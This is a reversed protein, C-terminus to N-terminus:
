KRILEFPAAPLQKPLEKDKLNYEKRNRESYVYPINLCMSLDGDEICMSFSFTKLKKMSKLFNLNPLINQGFLHLHELNVLQNICSFDKIKPCNEITLSRLSEAVNSLESIDQLKRGYYIALQQLNDFSNIGDLSTLGCLTFELDMLDKCNSLYKLNRHNKDGYITAIQLTQISNYNMHGKKAVHLDTIGKIKSYDITTSLLEEAGGYQTRCNLYRIDPMDYLPSYDFNDTATDAPIIDIYKLTPCRTIFSIDEAIILAKELRYDNILKIHEDLSRESFCKKPTWCNCKEPNRIVIGNYVNSPKYVCTFVFGDRSICHYPLMYEIIDNLTNM